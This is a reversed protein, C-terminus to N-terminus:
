WFYDKGSESLAESILKFFLASNGVVLIMLGITLLTFAGMSRFINSADVSVILKGPGDNLLSISVASAILLLGTITFILSFAFFKIGLGLARGWNMKRMVMPKELIPKEKYFQNYDIFYERLVVAERM